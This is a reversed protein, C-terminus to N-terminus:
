VASEISRIVPLLFELGQVVDRVEHVDLAYVLTVGFEVIGHLGVETLDHAREDVVAPEFRADIQVVQLVINLHDVLQTTSGKVGRLVVQVDRADARDVGLRLEAPVIEDYEQTALHHPQEVLDLTLRDTFSTCRLDILNCGQL